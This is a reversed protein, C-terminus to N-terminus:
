TNVNTLPLTQYTHYFISCTRYIGELNNLFNRFKMTNFISEMEHIDPCLPKIIYMGYDNRMKTLLYYENILAELYEQTAGNIINPYTRILERAIKSPVISIGRSTLERFIVVGKKPGIGKIGPISDSADGTVAMFLSFYKPDFGYEEWFDSETRTTHGQEKKNASKIIKTNKNLLVQMDHDASCILNEYKSKNLDHAIHAIIDDAEGQTPIAVPIGLLPALEKILNMEATIDVSISTPRKSKYIPHKRRPNNEHSGELVFIAIDIKHLERLKWITDLMGYIIGSSIQSTATTKIFQGKFSHAFRFALNASDILAITHKRVKPILPM